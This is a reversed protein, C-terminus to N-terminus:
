QTESNEYEKVAKMLFNFYEKETLKRLIIVQTVEEDYGFQIAGGHETLRYGGLMGGDTTVSPGYTPEGFALRLLKEVLDYDDRSLRIIVGYQDEAYNWASTIAPLENVTIPQGGRTIAQKLIFQGADGSGNKFRMQDQHVCSCLLMLSVVILSTIFRMNNM